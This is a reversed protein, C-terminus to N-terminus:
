IREQVMYTKGIEMTIDDCIEVPHHIFPAVRVMLKPKQKVVQLKSGKLLKRIIPYYEFPIMMDKHYKEDHKEKDLYKKDCKNCKEWNFTM